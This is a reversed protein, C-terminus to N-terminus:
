VTYNKRSLHQKENHQFVYHITPIIDMCYNCKHLIHSINCTKYNLLSMDLSSKKIFEKNNYCFKSSDMHWHVKNSYIITYIEHTQIYQEKIKNIKVMYYYKTGNWKKTVMSRNKVSDYYPNNLYLRCMYKGNRWIHYGQYELILDVLEQSLMTFINEM